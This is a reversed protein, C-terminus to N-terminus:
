WCTQPVLHSRHLTFLPHMAVQLEAPRGNYMASITYMRWSGGQSPGHQECDPTVCGSDVHKPFSTLACANFLPYVVVQVQANRSYHMTNTSPSKNTSHAMRYKAQHRAGAKLMDPGHPSAQV